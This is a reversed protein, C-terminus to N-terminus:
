WLLIIMLLPFCHLMSIPDTSSPSVPELVLMGYHSLVMVQAVLSTAIVLLHLLYSGTLFDWLQVTFDQSGSAFYKGDPSFAVIDVTPLHGTITRLCADWYDQFGLHIVISNGTIEQNYQKCLATKTPTYPLASEYIHL